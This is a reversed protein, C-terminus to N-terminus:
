AKAMLVMKEAMFKEYSIASPYPNGILNYNGRGGVIVRADENGTNLSDILGGQMIIQGDNAYFYGNGINIRSPKFYSDTQVDYAYFHDNDNIPLIEDQIYNFPFSIISYRKSGQSFGTNRIITAPPAEKKANPTLISAGSQLILYVFFPEHDLLTLTVGPMITLTDGYINNYVKDCHLTDKGNFILNNSSELVVEEISQCKNNKITLTYTGENLNTFLGDKSHYGGPELFYEYVDNYSHIRIALSGEENCDINTMGKVLKYYGNCEQNQAYLGFLTSFYIVILLIKLLRLYISYQLLSM